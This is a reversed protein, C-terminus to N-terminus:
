KKIYIWTMISDTDTKKPKHMRFFLWSYNNKTNFIWYNYTIWNSDYLSKFDKQLIYDKSFKNELILKEWNKEETEEWIYVGVWERINIHKLVWNNKNKIYNEYDKEEIENLRISFPIHEKIIKQMKEDFININKWLFSYFAKLQFPYWLQNNLLNLEWNEQLKEIQKMEFDEYLLDIPIMKLITDIKEKWYFVWKETIKLNWFWGIIANINNEGFKNKFFQVLYFEEKYSLEWTVFVNNKTIKKIENTFNNLLDKNPNICNEYDFKNLFYSEIYWFPTDNNIESIQIKGSETVFFDWRNYFNSDLFNNKKHNRLIFNKLEIIEIDLYNVLEEFFNNYIYERLLNFNKNAELLKDYLKASIFSSEYSYDENEKCFSLYYKEKNM